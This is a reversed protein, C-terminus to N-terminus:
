QASRVTTWVRPPNLKVVREGTAGIKFEQRADDVRVLGIRTNAKKVLRREFVQTYSVGGPYAIVEKSGGGFMTEEEGPTVLAVLAPQAWIGTGPLSVSIKVLTVAGETKTVVADVTAGDAKSTQGWYAEITCAALSPNGLSGDCNNPTTDTGAPCDYWKTEISSFEGYSVSIEESPRYSVFYGCESDCCYQPPPADCATGLALLPVFAVLARISRKRAEPTLQRPFPQPEGVPTSRHPRSV